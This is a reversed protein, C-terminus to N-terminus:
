RKLTIIYGDAEVQTFTLVPVLLSECGLNINDIMMVHQCSNPIENVVHEYTYTGTEFFDEANSDAPNNNVVEVTGDYNFKWTITGPPFNFDSGAIGGSVNVLNWTGIPKDDSPNDDEDCQFAWLLPSCLLLLIIKKM